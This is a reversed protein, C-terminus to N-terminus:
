KNEFQQKSEKKIIIEEKKVGKQEVRGQAQKNMRM